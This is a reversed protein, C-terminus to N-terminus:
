NHGGSVVIRRSGNSQGRANALGRLRSSRRRAPTASCRVAAAGTLKRTTERRREREEESTRFVYKKEM